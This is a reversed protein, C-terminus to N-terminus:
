KQNMKTFLLAKNADSDAVVLSLHSILLAQHADGDSVVQLHAFNPIKVMVLVLLSLHILLLLAQHNEGDM